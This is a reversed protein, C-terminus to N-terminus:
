GGHEILRPESSESRQSNGYPRSVRSRQGRGFCDLVSDESAAKGSALNPSPRTLFSGLEKIAEGVEFSWLQERVEV